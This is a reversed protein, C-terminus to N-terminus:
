SKGGSERLARLSNRFRRALDFIVIILAAGLVGIDLTWELLILIWDPHDPSALKGLVWLSGLRVLAVLILLASDQVVTSLFEARWALQPGDDERASPLHPDWAEPLEFTSTDRRDASPAEAAQDATEGIRRELNPPLESGLLQRQEIVAEVDEGVTRLAMVAGASFFLQGNDFFEFQGNGDRRGEALVLIRM